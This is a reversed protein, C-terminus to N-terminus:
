PRLRAFGDSSLVGSADDVDVDVDVDVDASSLVPCLLCALMSGAGVLGFSPLLLLLLLLLMSVIECPLHVVPM